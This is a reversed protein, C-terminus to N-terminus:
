KGGLCLGELCRLCLHVLVGSFSVLGGVTGSPRIPLLAVFNQGEGGGLLGLCSAQSAPLSITPNIKANQSITM